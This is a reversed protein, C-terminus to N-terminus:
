SVNVGKLSTPFQFDIYFPSSGYCRKQEDEVVLGYTKSGHYGSLDVQYSWRNIGNDGKQIKVYGKTGSYQYYPTPTVTIGPPPPPLGHFWPESLDLIIKSDVDLNTTGNIEFVDGVTHKGVPNILICCTNNNETLPLCQPQVITPRIFTVAPIPTTTPTKLNEIPKESICGTSILVGAVLASIILTFLFQKM